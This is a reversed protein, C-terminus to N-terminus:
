GDESNLAVARRFVDVAKDFQKLKVLCAAQAHLGDPKSDFLTGAKEFHVVAAACNGQQYELVALMGHSTQDEPRLSLLRKLHPIAAASGDSYEIQIAGQLAPIYDPSIKLTSRFSDLAQKNQGQGAYAAGQMAWLQANNPFDKLAGRTLEVARSFEGAQLASSIAQIQAEQDQGFAGLPIALLLIALAFKRVMIM